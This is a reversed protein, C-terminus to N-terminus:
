ILDLHLKVASNIKAMISNSVCAQIKLNSIRKKSITRIQHCQAKSKKPLGSEKTELLVEFPYVRNVNSTIPIITITNSVNNNANNSVILVPRIKKTEDGITPDLDAFYIEGRKM